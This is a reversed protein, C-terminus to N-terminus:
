MKAYKTREIKIRISGDDITFGPADIKKKMVSCGVIVNEILTACDVCLDVETSDLTDCEMIKIGNGSTIPKRKYMPLNYKRTHKEEGCIDCYEKIM